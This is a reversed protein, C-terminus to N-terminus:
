IMRMMQQKTTQLDPNQRSLQNKSIKLIQALFDGDQGNYVEIQDLIKTRMVNKLYNIDNKDKLIVNQNSTLPQHSIFLRIKRM